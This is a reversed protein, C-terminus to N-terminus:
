IKAQCKLLFFFYTITLSGLSKNWTKFNWKGYQFYLITYFSTNTTGPKESWCRRKKVLCNGVKSQALLNPPYPTPPIPVPDKQHVQFRKHKNRKARFLQKIKFLRKYKENMIRICQIKSGFTWKHYEQCQYSGRWDHSIISQVQM